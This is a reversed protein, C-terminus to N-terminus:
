VLIRKILIIEGEYSIVQDLNEEAVMKNKFSNHIVKEDGASIAVHGVYINKQPFWEDNYHGKKSRFFILDGVELDKKDKVEEGRTAQALASRPININIEKYVEQIFSSCDSVGPLTELPNPHEYKQGVFSRAIELIKKRNEEM